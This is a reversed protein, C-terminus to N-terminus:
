LAASGNHQYLFLLLIKCHSPCAFQALYTSQFKFNNVSLIAIVVVVSSVAVMSLVVLRWYHCSGKLCCCCRNFRWTRLVNPVSNYQNEQSPSPSNRLYQVVNVPSISYPTLQLCDRYLQVVITTIHFSFSSVFLPM